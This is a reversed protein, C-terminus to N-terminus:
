LFRTGFIRYLRTGWPDDKHTYYSLICCEIWPPERSSAVCYKSSEKIGLLMSWKGEKDKGWFYESDKDCLFAKITATPDELTLLDPDVGRCTCAAVVRVICRYKYTVKPFTIIDMLTVFPACDDDTETLGIPSPFSWFPIHGYNSSQRKDYIRMIKEVLHDDQSRHHVKTSATVKGVWSGKDAQCLLGYLEIWECTKVKHHSIRLSVRLITGVTPFSLLIDRSLLTNVSINSCAEEKEKGKTLISVPPADTGDWVFITNKDEDVHIIKCLLDFSKGEKIERFFSFKNSGEDVVRNTTFLKGLYDISSKYQEDGHFNSTCQYCVFDYGDYLAFSSVHKNCAGNVRKGGEYAKMKLRKFLVMDKHNNNICPLHELKNSFVNVTLGPSAYTEDIIRVTCIWDNTICLKPERREIVIGVLDVYQNIRNIADKIKVLKHNDERKKKEM